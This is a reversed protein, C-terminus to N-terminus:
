NKRRTYKIASENITVERKKHSPGKITPLKITFSWSYKGFIRSIKSVNNKKHYVISKSPRNLLFLLNEIVCNEDVFVSDFYNQPNLSLEKDVPQTISTNLKPLNHVSPLQQSINPFPNKIISDKFDKLSCSFLLTAAM